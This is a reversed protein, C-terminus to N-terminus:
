IFAIAMSFIVHNVDGYDIFAGEGNISCSLASIVVIIALREADIDGHDITKAITANRVTCACKAFKFCLYLQEQLCSSLFFTSKTGIMMPHDLNTM